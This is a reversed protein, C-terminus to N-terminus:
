FWKLDIGNLGAHVLTETKLDFIVIEAKGPKSQYGLSRIGEIESMSDITYSEMAIYRLDESVKPLELSMGGLKIIEELENNDNLQSIKFLGRIGETIQYREAFIAQDGLFVPDVVYFSGNTIANKQANADVLSVYPFDEISAGFPSEVALYQNKDQNFDTVDLFKGLPVISEFTKTDVLSFSSESGKLLVGSGDDLIKVSVIDGFTDLNVEIHELEQKKLDLKYLMNRGQPIAYDGFIKVEAATLFVQSFDSSADLSNIQMNSDIEFERQPAKYHISSEGNKETIALLQNQSVEYLVINDQSNFLTVNSVLDVGTYAVTKRDTSLYALKATKTKFSYEFESFNNGYIDRANSNVNVYYTTDFSLPEDFIINLTNEFFSLSYSTEPIITLNGELSSLDVQRNTKISLIQNDVSANEKTGAIQTVKQFTPTQTELMIAFVLSAFVGVLIFTSLIINYSLKKM